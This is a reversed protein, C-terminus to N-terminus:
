PSAPAVGDGVALHLHDLHVPDTFYGRGPGNLDFPGGVETAGLEGARVMVRNLLERPLNPDSVLYGGVGVIDAARRQTHRSVRDTGFVNVPHGDYLVQVQLDHEDALGALVALVGDDIRGSRVDAEAPAPLALRPHGLVRM